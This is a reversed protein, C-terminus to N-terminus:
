RERNRDIEYRVATGLKELIYPKKVYAGAGLAQARTVRETESFGSVIIAKQGPHLELIRSYTALGDMGHDMIMDLVVLDAGNQKLHEVAQEGSQVGTVSYDLKKLMLCALELQEKVDDVVLISEGRGRYEAASASAKELAKEERTVPFYLTFTTGKGQASEVNIYGLHDKVTGWVVALGLGTGSRGMVKKTYFPEFIRKLDDAAIGEGTDSITFVVYDGAKVEDYGSVPKDLYKNRTSMKIAGGAAMAEVANNVLNLISKELHVSSGSLNLLDAELDAEISVALNNAFIAAFEPSNRCDLIIKNLNLVGRNSVGRRALTLLDQVIAAARQGGKLIKQAKARSPSSEDLDLTLLESYGVVVGLVNNLDHAVGGALTGLAEMKEARQLREELIKRDHEAQKEKTIDRILVQILGMNELQIYNLSVEADFPVGNKRIHQWYFRQPNGEVTASLLEHGKEKSNRGDPQTPFSLDWPTRGTIDEVQECGFLGLATQNCEIFSGQPTLILAGDNAGEFLTHYRKEAERLGEEAQKRETIDRVVALIRNQGSIEASKLSVEARFTEGNNKRAQWEFVQPGEEVTKRLWQQAEAQSYPSVGLSADTILTSRWPEERSFGYLKLTSDNVDLVAGTDADHIFIADNVANFIERYNRESQQLAEEAKKRDTIDQIVGFVREGEPDYEAISHIDIIQRDAPRLIKFEVNYPEGREILGRLARDLMKRYEPLPIQKVEALSWESGEVGYIIRAGESGVIENSGTKLEWNGLRAAVEARKLSKESLRLKEEARKRETIDNGVCLVEAVQGNKYRIPINTWAIWVREGNRRMNESINCNYTVPDRAINAILSALDRGTSEIAPVIAGVLSKGLIEKTTYDFFSRAFENFFTAKGLSDMRIIISNANEVLERYQKESGKLADLTLQLQSTKAAVSKRLSYIWLVLFLIAFATVRSLYLLYQMYAHSIGVFSGMWKRNIDSYKAPSIKSFGDDILNLLDLKGKAVARHFQGSYLPPSRRYKNAVNMKNLYYLAPPEDMCFVRIEKSVSAKIIDQFTPYEKLTTIGHDKLYEICADDEKVGITFGRLSDVSGIGSIDKHFFIPVRITAYPKSFDFRKARARTLFMTDIVDAKGEAFFKLAKDWDMGALNVGIGTEKEWLGWQDVLIGQLKGQSDRFVYPPYNDDVVVTIAKPRQFGTGNSAFCVSLLCFVIAAALSTAVPVRKWTRM